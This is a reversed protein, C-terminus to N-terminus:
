NETQDPPNNSTPASSNLITYNGTVPTANNGSTDNAYVTYNHVGTYFGATSFYYWWIDGGDKTMTYNTGEVDVWVSSVNENDTVNATINIMQGKYAPDPTANVANIVPPIQDPTLYTIDFRM